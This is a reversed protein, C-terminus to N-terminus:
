VVSRQIVSQLLNRALRSSGTYLLLAHSNFLQVVAPPTDLVVPLVDLPIKNDCTTIKFGPLLGGVQDQWGGGVVIM